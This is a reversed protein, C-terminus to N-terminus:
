PTRRRSVSNTLTGLGAISVEMVDGPALFEGSAAGVGSPTGTLLVDGPRLTMLRSAFSILEAVTFIMEKTSGQQRIRGNVRLEIDLSQPDTVEGATVLYPGIPAFGDLWKGALWDFFGVAPDGTDRPYGYDVSRASVDNGVAYGAVVGLADEVAVDKATRGLVVALEAEWDIQESVSPFPIEAGPGALATIPMLFLRPALGAKDLRAAGLETVHEQYNAAVGLLKGPRQLPALPELESLRYTRGGSAPRWGAFDGHEEILGLLDGDGLETVLADPSGATLCGHRVAGDRRYTLLKM